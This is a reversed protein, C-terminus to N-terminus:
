KDMSLSNMNFIKSLSDLIDELLNDEYVMIVISCLIYAGGVISLFHFSKNLLIYGLFGGGIFSLVSLTHFRVKWLEMDEGRLFAGLAFAADTINGTVHSTRVVAGKYRLFMGNQMGVWFSIFFMQIKGPLFIDSLILLLGGFLLLYAYKKKKYTDKHAFLIGSLFSGIFFCLLILILKNTPDGHEYLNIALGSSNGTHHTVPTGFVKITYVNIAGTLITIIYILSLLRINIRRDKEM